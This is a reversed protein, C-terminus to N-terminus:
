LPGIILGQQEQRYYCSAVPDRIVPPEKELAEVEPLNETVVYQHVMNVIPLRFGSMQAIQDSFSGAANVVHECVIEGQDTAVIWEGGPSQSVDIVRTRRYIEAGQSRASIAM